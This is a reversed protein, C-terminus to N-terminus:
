SDTFISKPFNEVGYQSEFGPGELGYDLLLLLAVGAGM